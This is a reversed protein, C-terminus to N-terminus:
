KEISGLEAKEKSETKVAAASGIEKTIEDPNGMLM